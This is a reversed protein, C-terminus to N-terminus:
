AVPGPPNKAETGAGPLSSKRKAGAFEDLEELFKRLPRYFLPVILILAAPWNNALTELLTVMRLHEESILSGFVIWYTIYCTLLFIGLVTSLEVLGLVFSACWLCAPRFGPWWAPKEFFGM